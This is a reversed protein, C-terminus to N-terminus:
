SRTPSSAFKLAVRFVEKLDPDKLLEEGANFSVERWETDTTPAPPAGFSYAIPGQKGATDHALVKRLWENLPGRTM